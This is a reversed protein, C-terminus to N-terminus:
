PNVVFDGFMTANHGPFTCVFQYSGAEPAAFSAEGARGPGVLEVGAIVDPDDAQLWGDAPGAAAGRESVADKEGQRVIILNHEYLSSVNDLYLAVESGAEVEMLGTDFELSDGKVSVAIAGAPPEAQEPAATPPEAAASAAQASLPLSDVYEAIALREAESLLKGFPPMVSDPGFVRTTSSITFVINDVPNDTLDPPDIVPRYGYDEKLMQVVPGDGAAADGHCMSCNVVYLHQGDTFATSVPPPYWPVSSAPASLSPPEQAKHSQQYHMEYFIDVPYSGQSCGFAALAGLLALGLLGAKMKGWPVRRSRTKGAAGSLGSEGSKISTLSDM